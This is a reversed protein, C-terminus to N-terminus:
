WPLRSLHLSLPRPSTLGRFTPESCCPWVVCWGSVREPGPIPDAPSVRTVGFLQPCWPPAGEGGMPMLQVCSMPRTKILSALLVSADRTTSPLMWVTSLISFYFLFEM